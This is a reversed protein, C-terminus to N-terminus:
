AAIEGKRSHLDFQEILALCAEDLNSTQMEQLLQAIETELVLQGKHILILNDAVDIVGKQTGSSIVVSQGIDRCKDIQASLLSMSLSDLYTYPNDLILLPCSVLFTGVLGLKAKLSPELEKVDGDLYIPDFGLQHAIMTAKDRDLVEGYLSQSLALFAWGTVNKPYSLKEPLFFVSQRALKQQIDTDYLFIRGHIPRNLGALLKTLRTKGSGSLGYILTVKAEDIQFHGFHQEVEGDRSLSIDQITLIPPNDM